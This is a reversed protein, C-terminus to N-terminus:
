KLYADIGNAIGTVLKKQYKSTAMLSDEKPNSMFGMEIITVPVKCWNIGSMTDTRWVGKSNAGTSKLMSKLVNSSLSYSKSYLKGNYPNSKTQCITMIGNDKRNVSGNAHIRIFADANAKNAIKARESNSINVNNTERIMIVKYGRKVLEKKLLKAVSLNLQYEALGTSVGSTGGTVKAKKTSAGPGIPEKATNAHRQHGADIVIVKKSTTRSLFIQNAYNSAKAQVNAEQSPLLLQDCTVIAFIICLLFALKRIARNM